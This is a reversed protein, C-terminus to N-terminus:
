FQIDDDAAVQSIPKPREYLREFLAVMEGTIHGMVDSGHWHGDGDRIGSHELEIVKILQFAAEQIARLDEAYQGTAPTIGCRKQFERIDADSRSGMKSEEQTSSTATPRKAQEGSRKRKALARM